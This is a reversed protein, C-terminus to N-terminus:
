FFKYLNHQTKINAFEGTIKNLLNNLIVILAININIYIVCLCVFMCIYMYSSTIEFFLKILSPLNLFYTKNQFLVLKRIM